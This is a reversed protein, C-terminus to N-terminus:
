YKYGETKSKAEWWFSLIEVLGPHGRQCWLVNWLMNVLWTEIVNLLTNEPWCCHLKVQIYQSNLFLNQRWWSPQYSKVGLRILNYLVWLCSVLFMHPVRHRPQGSSGVTTSCIISIPCSLSSVLAYLNFLAISQISDKTSGIPM